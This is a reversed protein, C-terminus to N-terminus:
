QFMWRNNTIPWIEESIKDPNSRIHPGLKRFHNMQNRSLADALFNSKMDIYMATIKRNFHLGDLVLTRLLWM